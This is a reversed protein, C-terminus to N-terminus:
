QRRRQCSPENRCDGRGPVDHRQCPLLERQRHSRLRGRFARCVQSRHVQRHPFPPGDATIEFLTKDKWALATQFCIEDVEDISGYVENRYAEVQARLQPLRSEGTTLESIYAALVFLSIMSAYYTRLGAMNDGKPTNTHYVHAAAKAVRSDPNDTLGLTLCGYKNGRKLVEVVRSPGGSVSIGIVLTKPQAEKFPEFRTFDIAYPAEYNVQPLFHAFAGSASIAALYSDGCGTAIIRNVGALEKELGLAKLSAVSRDFQIMSLTEVDLCQLRFNNFYKERQM